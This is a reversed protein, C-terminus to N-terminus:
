PAKIGYLAATTHQAFNNGIPALTLSTVASTSRWLGSDLLALGAGNQDRGHFGRVTKFKSTSAYDLVDLLMAAFVSATDTSITTTSTFIYNVNSDANAAASSGDGYLQHYAYNAATDANFTLKTTRSSGNTSSNRFIMRLHLHHFTSPISTFEISSAGGSGVTVTAISEFAGGPVFFNAAGISGFQGVIPM